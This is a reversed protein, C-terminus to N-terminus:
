SLNYTPMVPVMVMVMVMVVLPVMYGTVLVMDWDMDVMLQDMFVVMATLQDMFVMVTPQDMFVVMDTFVQMVVM